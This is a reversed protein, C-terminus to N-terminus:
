GPEGRGSAPLAIPMTLNGVVLVNGYPTGMGMPQADVTLGLGELLDGWEGASRYHFRQGWHRRLLASLREQARTATFRWGAAANAERLFLVGGPHLAAVAKALVAEQDAAPLYHLVDLLLVADAQPYDLARLDGTVIEARDELAERAAEATRPRGEIGHFTLRPPPLAWGHPYKGKAWLERAGLVLAFVIGRGCGLDLLRGEPPLLGQRLLSFYVPDHRLKGRAFEWHLMGPKLYHCASEELLAEIEPHAQRRRALWWALLAFLAALVGGIALTGLTLDLAAQRLDLERLNHIHIHIYSQGRLRRGTELEALILFPTIGPLSIHAALYTLGANLRFLRALLICLALHLGYLPSVGIFVGLAVAAAQKGPSMGETRLKYLVDQIERAARSKKKKTTTM